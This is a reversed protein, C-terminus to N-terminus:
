KKKADFVVKGQRFVKVIERELNGVQDRVPVDKRENQPKLAQEIYQEALHGDAFAQLIQPNAVVIDTKVGPKLVSKLDGEYSGVAASSAAIASILDLRQAADPHHMASWIAYLMSKPMGDTGVMMPVGENVIDTHPCLLRTRGELRDTYVADEVAFNPQISVWAGVERTDKIASGLPLEFHEFRVEPNKGQEQALQKWRQAFQLARM